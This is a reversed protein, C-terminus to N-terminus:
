GASTDAASLGLYRPALAYVPKRRRGKRGDRSAEAGSARAGFEAVANAGGASNEVDSEDLLLDMDLGVSSAHSQMELAESRFRM